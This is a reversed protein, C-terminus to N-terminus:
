KRWPSNCVKSRKPDENLAKIGQGVDMDSLLFDGHDLFDSWDEEYFFDFGDEREPQVFEAESFGDFNGFAVLEGENRELAAGGFDHVLGVGAGFMIEGGDGGGDAFTGGEEIEFDFIEVGDFGGDFAGFDVEGLAGGEVACFFDAYFVGGAV